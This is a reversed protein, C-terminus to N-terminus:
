PFYNHSSGHGETSFAAVTVTVALRYSLLFASPVFLRVEVRERGKRHGAAPIDM